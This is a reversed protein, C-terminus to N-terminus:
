VMCDFYMALTCYVCEFSFVIGELSRPGGGRKCSPTSNGHRRNSSSPFLHSSIFSLLHLRASPTVFLSHTTLFFRICTPFPTLSLLELFTFPLFFSLYLSLNPQPLLLVSMLHSFNILECEILRGIFQHYSVRASELRLNKLSFNKLHFNKLSSNLTWIKLM